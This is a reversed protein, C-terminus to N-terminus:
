VAEKVMLDLYENRENVNIKSVINFYRNGFKLRWDPRFPNRYRIRIRGTITMVEQMSSITEKASLPWIACWITAHDTWTETFNGMGDSAKTPYQITIQKNLEGILM